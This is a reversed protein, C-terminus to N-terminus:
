RHRGGRAARAPLRTGDMLDVVGNKGFKPDPKGTKADLSALHYGPTVVIVREDSGSPGTPSGAARSAGRRRRGASARRGDGVELADKRHRSRARLGQASEDRRHLPSGERLAAHLSLVRRRRVRRREVALRGEALRLQGRQDPRAAFLAHEVRRRGLLAVRRARQRARAVAGARRAVHQQARSDTRRRDRRRCDTCAVRMIRRTASREAM